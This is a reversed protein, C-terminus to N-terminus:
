EVRPVSIMFSMSMNSWLSCRSPSARNADVLLLHCDSDSRGHKIALPRRILDGSYPVHLPLTSTTDVFIERKVSRLTQAALLTPSSAPSGAAGSPAAPEGIIRHYREVTQLNVEICRVPHRNIEEGFHRLYRPLDAKFRGVERVWGRQTEREISDLHLDTSDEQLLRRFQM